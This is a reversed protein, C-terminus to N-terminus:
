ELGEVMRLIAEVDNRLTEREARLAATEGQAEALRAQLEAQEVRGAKLQEVEDKLANRQHVLTQLKQELQKLVDM